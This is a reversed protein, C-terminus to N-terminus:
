EARKVYRLLLEGGGRLVSVLAMDTPAPRPDNAIRGATGTELRPALTLCLEDVVGAVLFSGFLTPGGEGHIRGLGRAILDDRVHAPDVVTEGADVVDAVAALAARREAPAAAVTYVVPRVPADSFIPSAPDLDLRGSVLAFAPHPPMGRDVRWAAAADDLRMGGYGEIRATGAGVLVVDAHRRLLVFVRHDAPGGLGGSRGDHTVAGDLSSVFNMRLWPEDAPPAYVALLQEDDLGAVPDPWLRDISM